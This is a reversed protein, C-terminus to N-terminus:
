GKKEGHGEELAKIRDKYQRPTEFKGPSDETNGFFWGWIGRSKGHSKAGKWLGLGEQKARKEANRYVDELGGFESGFKAEYVTAVGKKLMELGVDKKRLGFWSRVYVTAVVREYQDRRHIYVRVYRGLVLQKLFVLAEAGFPQAPRGFHALEPADIGAIRVHLTQDRVEKPLAAFGDKTNHNNNSKNKVDTANRLLYARRGVLWGWGAGLGGPTHYFRFNDGDGVSTCYGYLSKNRFVSPHIHNISIIRKLNRKYFRIAILSTGTLLLTPLLVQPTIYTSPKLTQTIPDSPPQSTSSTSKDKPRSTFPLWTPWAM